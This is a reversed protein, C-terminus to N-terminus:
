RKTWMKKQRQLTPKVSYEEIINSLAAAYCDPAFRRRAAQRAAAGLTRRLAADDLLRQLCAALDDADGPACLVGNSAGDVIEPLAGARAAVAPLGALMAEVLALGFGEGVAPHAYIDVTGLLMRVDARAGTFHIRAGFGSAQAQRLVDAQLAGVGILLLHVDDRRAAVRAFAAILVDHRKYAVFSATYAIVLADAAIGLLRTRDDRPAAAADEVGLHLVRCRGRHWRYAVADATARSNALVDGHSALLRYLGTRLWGDLIDTIAVHWFVVRMNLGFAAAWALVYPKFSCCLIVQPRHAVLLRRLAFCPRVYGADGIDHAAIGAAQFAADADAAIGQCSVAHVDMRSRDRHRGFIAFSQAVGGTLPLSRDFLFARM